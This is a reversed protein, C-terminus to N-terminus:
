ETPYAVSHKVVNLMVISLMINYVAVFCLHCEPMINHETICIKIAISLTMKSLTTISLKMISLETTNHCLSLITINLTMSQTLIIVTMISLVM